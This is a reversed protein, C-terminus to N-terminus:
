NPVKLLDRHTNADVVRTHYKKIYESQEKFPYAEDAPYPYASMGHFPLPDVTQGYATNMDGDKVWGVSYIVFDRKWGEPLKKLGEAPYSVSIEDGANYVIYQNDASELLPTVAGYRTYTGELDMWKPETTYQHYDFWHPGNRGEKRYEASFGRYQLDAQYTTLPTIKGQFSSKVYSYFIHDWYIQMSTRIRIRRDNTKFIKSLDTVMTKNKGLPFGLNEIVTVWQGTENVVQLYPPVPGNEGSQSIAVNISADSPFIWGNLFLHLDDTAIGKGLDIILDKLETVGQYKSREFNSIYDHDIAVVRTSLDNHGDTVSVPQHKHQIPYLELGPFPPLVFKEDLMFDTDEPHDVAYLVLEDLYITEWLEGTIKLRYQGDALQLMEGPLKLYERSADPFAYTRAHDSTMIGLPMGLASRWMMDKVFVYSEGNWAYLFPCSGKLKQQEVLDRDSHPAFINQPVGNTWRIRLIDAREYAGLGFYENPSTITKMQYLPGARVEVKSGIGYYNNKGSGERLGVLQLKLQYNMNGGDNRLLGISGDQYCVFVDQDGDENYDGLALSRVSQLSDAFLRSVEEFSDKQDNRLLMLGRGQGNDQAVAMVIDQFGDNDFDFFAHAGGFLKDSGAIQEIVPDATFGQKGQNKYLQHGGAADSLLLDLYGDNNYDGTSVAKSAQAGPLGLSATADQFVGMRSNTYLKNGGDNAIFFDIDGDDDFDGFVVANTASNAGAIGSSKSIDTFSGNGNNQFLLDEAATGVFLDLDGDHDADFFLACKGNSVKGLGSSQSVEEYKLEDVNRYLKTSGNDILLLDQFGDNDYDSFLAQEAKLGGDIGSEGLVEDFRGLENRYLFLGQEMNPHNIGVLLDQDGDNDLDNVLVWSDKDGNMSGPNGGGILGANDAVDNFKISQYVLNEDEGGFRMMKRSFSIVPIGIQSYESGRLARNDAQYWTTLKLQNHFMVLSTYAQEGQSNRLHDYAQNFQPAIDPPMEEFKSRIDEFQELAKDFEENELLYEILYMRPVINTPAVEIIKTLYDILTNMASGEGMQSSESMKYLAFLNDPDIELITELESVARQHEDRQEYLEFLNLRVTINQAELELAKEFYEEAETLKGQRLYVIGLNTYGIIEEPALEILRIFEAEAQELQNQDLFELGAQRTAQAETLQPAGGSEKGGCAVVM